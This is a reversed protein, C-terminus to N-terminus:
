RSTEEMELAQREADQAQIFTSDAIEQLQGITAHANSQLFRNTALAWRLNAQQIRAQANYILALLRQREAKELRQRNAEEELRQREAMRRQREAEQAELRQREAEQAALRQLRQREAEGM